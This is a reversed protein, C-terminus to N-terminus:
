NSDEHKKQVFGLKTEQEDGVRNGPKLIGHFKYFENWLKDKDIDSLETYEDQTIGKVARIWLKLKM